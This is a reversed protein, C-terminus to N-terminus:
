ICQAKNYSYHGFITVGAFMVAAIVVGARRKACRFLLTDAQYKTIKKNEYRRDHRECCGAWTGEPFLTCHDTM